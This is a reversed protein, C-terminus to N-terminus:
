HIDLSDKWIKALVFHVGPLSDKVGDVVKGYIVDGQKQTKPRQPTLLIMNGEVPPILHLPYLL